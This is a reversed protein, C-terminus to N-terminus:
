SDVDSQKLGGISINQGSAATAEPSLLYEITPIVDDVTLNRKLPSNEANMKRVIDSLHSVFSTELMSPSIGSVVLGKEAYEASLCKMLGLLAYKSVTYPVAYKGPIERAVNETLMFVIRGFKNKAMAPIIANCIAYASHVEVMLHIAYDTWVTKVFRVNENRVAPFHVFHSPEMGSGILKQAFASTSDADTFDAQFPIIKEGLWTQLREIKATNSQYHCIVKDYNDIVREILASGVDSSAGTVLLIKNSM